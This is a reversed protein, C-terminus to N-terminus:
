LPDFTKVMCQRSKRRTKCERMESLIYRSCSKVANTKCAPTATAVEKLSVVGVTFSSLAVKTPKVLPDTALNKPM